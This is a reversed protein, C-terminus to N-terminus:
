SMVTHIALATFLTNMSLHMIRGDVSISIGCGVLICTNTDGVVTVSCGVTWGVAVGVVVATELVASALANLIVIGSYVSSFTLLIMSTSANHM